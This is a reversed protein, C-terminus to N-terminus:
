TEVKRLNGFDDIVAIAYESFGGEEMPFVSYYRYDRNNRWWTYAANRGEDTVM